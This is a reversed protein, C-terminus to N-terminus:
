STMTDRYKAPTQGTFKKFSTYFSSKSTFGADYGHALISFTSEKDNKMLRKVEEVRYSNIFDYFNQDLKRNIVESLNHSSFEVKKALEGLNLKPDLYTKEEQILTKLKKLYEEAKEDSLGSNKYVSTEKKEFSKIEPQKYSKFALTYLFISLSIYILMNAQLEQGYAFGVFYALVVVTWIIITGIVTHQLWSVDIDEINSFSNKIKRNYVISEKTTYIMYIIGSVPILGGIIQIALPQAIEFDLMSLQYVPDEFYFFFVAYIQIFIFPLFHLYDFWKVQERKHILFITYLFILPGYLYPFSNNLAMFWPMHHINGSLFLVGGFLDLAFILMVLALFKNALHNETKRILVFFLLVGQAAGISFIYTIIEKFELM